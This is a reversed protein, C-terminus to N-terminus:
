KGLRKNLLNSLKDEYTNETEFLRSALSDHTWGESTSQQKKKEEAAKRRREVEAAIRPNDALTKERRDQAIGADRHTFGPRMAEGVQPDIGQEKQSLIYDWVTVLMMESKAIKEQCWEPLNDNDDIADMLGKVARALTILNGKAMGAEDNYEPSDFEEEVSENKGSLGARAEAKTMKYQAQFEADTLARLDMMLEKVRGESIGKKKAEKELDLKRQTVAKQDVDKNMSLDQLTKRKAQLDEKDRLASELMHQLSEAYEQSKHKVDGQKAAKKKDKHAGAGSTTSSANKAVFNRPKVTRIPDRRDKKGENM